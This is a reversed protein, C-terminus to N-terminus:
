TRPAIFSLDIVKQFFIVIALLRKSQLLAGAKLDKEFICVRSGVVARLYLLNEFRCECGAGAQRDVPRNVSGKWRDVPRDVPAWCLTPHKWDTSRATSRAGVQARKHVDTSRAPRGFDQHQPRDVPGTSQGVQKRSSSSSNEATTEKAKKDDVEGAIM